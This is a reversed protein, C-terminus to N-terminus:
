PQLDIITDVYASPTTFGIVGSIGYEPYVNGFVETRTAIGSFCKTTNVLLVVLDRGNIAPTIASCSSDIDRIVLIGYTTNSLKSSNVTGFLGSSVSSSFCVSTFNLIVKKSSDSLAIYAHDLDIDDSAATPTIFIAVQSITSGGYYGSIHTVELGASIDKITEEGTLLAQEQMRNMTQIFVSAAIGAVLLM